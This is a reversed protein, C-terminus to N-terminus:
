GQPRKALAELFTAIGSFDEIELPSLLETARQRAHRWEPDTVNLKETIILNQARIQIAVELVWGTLAKVVGRLDPDGTM